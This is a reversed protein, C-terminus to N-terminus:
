RTTPRLSMEIEKGGIWGFGAPGRSIIDVHKIKIVWCACLDWCQQGTNYKFMEFYMCGVRGGPTWWVRQCWMCHLLRVDHNALLGWFFFYIYLEQRSYFDDRCAMKLAVTGSYGSDGVLMPRKNETLFTVILCSQTLPGAGETFILPENQPLWFVVFLLPGKLKNTCFWDFLTCM